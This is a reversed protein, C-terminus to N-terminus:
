DFDAKKSSQRRFLQTMGLILLLGFGAILGSLKPMEGTNPLAKATAVTSQQTGETKPLVATVKEYVYTVTQKEATVTGTANDPTTKLKYGSIDKSQTTYTEDVAATFVETAVLERGAEDVHKVHIDGTAIETIMEERWKAYYTKNANVPKSFDAVITCATDEYWGDFIYGNKTPDTSPQTAVKGAEVNQQSIISGGQTDFDVLYSNVSTLETYFTWVPQPGGYDPLGATYSSAVDGAPITLLKTAVDYGPQTFREFEKILTSSIVKTLDVTKSGDANTTYFGALDIVINGTHSSVAGCGIFKTMGVSIYVTEGYISHYGAVLNPCNRFDLTKLSPNGDYTVHTINLMGSLDLSTLNNNSVILTTLNTFFKIGTLDSISRGSLNLYIVTAIETPSLVNDTDKDLNSLIYSRFNADPFNTADIAIGARVQKGSVVAPTTVTTSPESAETDTVADETIEGTEADVLTEETVDDLVTTPPESTEIDVLTEETVYGGEPEIGAVEKTATEESAVTPPEVAKVVKAFVTGVSWSVSLLLTSLCILAKSKRSKM